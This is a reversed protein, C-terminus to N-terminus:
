QYSAILARIRPMAERTAKIGDEMLRKKQTFDFMSVGKTDPEIVVDARALKSRSSERM